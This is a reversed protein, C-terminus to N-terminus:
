RYWPSEKKWNVKRIDKITNFSIDIGLSM